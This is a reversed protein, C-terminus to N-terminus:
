LDFSYMMPLFWGFVTQFVIFSSNKKKKSEQPSPPYSGEGMWQAAGAKSPTLVFGFGFINRKSNPTQVL